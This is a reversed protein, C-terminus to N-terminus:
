QDNEKYNDSLWGTLPTLSASKITIRDLHESIEENVAFNRLRLPKM